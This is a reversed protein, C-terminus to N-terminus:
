RRKTEAKLKMARALIAVIAIIAFAVMLVAGIVSQQIVISVGHFTIQM